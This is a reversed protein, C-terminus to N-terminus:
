TCYNCMFYVKISNKNKVYYNLDSFLNKLITKIYKCLSFINIESM